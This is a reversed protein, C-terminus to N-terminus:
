RHKATVTVFLVIKMRNLQCALRERGAQGFFKLDLFWFGDLLFGFLIHLFLFFKVLFCFSSSVHFLHFLYPFLLSLLLFFHLPLLVNQSPHLELNFHIFELSHLIVFVFSKEVYTLILRDIFIWILQFFLQDFFMIIIYFFLYKSDLFTLFFINRHCFEHPNKVNASFFKFGTLELYFGHTLHWTCSIKLKFGWLIPITQIFCIGDFYYIMSNILSCM